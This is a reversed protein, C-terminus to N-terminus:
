LPSSEVDEVATVVDSKDPAPRFHRIGDDPSVITASVFHIKAICWNANFDIGAFFGNFYEDLRIELRESFLTSAKGEDVDRAVKKALSCSSCRPACCRFPLSVMPRSTDAFLSTPLMISALALRHTCAFLMFNPNLLAFRSVRNLGTEPEVSGSPPRM